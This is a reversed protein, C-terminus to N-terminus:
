QADDLCTECMGANVCQSLNTDIITGCKCVIDNPAYKGLGIGSFESLKWLLTAFYKKM